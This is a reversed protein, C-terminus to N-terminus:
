DYYEVGFSLANADAYRAARGSLEWRERHYSHRQAWEDSTLFQQWQLHTTRRIVDATLKSAPLGKNPAKLPENAIFLVCREMFAPQTIINRIASDQEVTLGSSSTLDFILPQREDLETQFIKALNWISHSASKRDPDLLGFHDYADQISFVPNRRHPYLREALATAMESCTGIPDAIYFAGSADDPMLFRFLHDSFYAEFIELPTTLTANKDYSNKSSSSSSLTDSGTKM